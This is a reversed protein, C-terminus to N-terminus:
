KTYDDIKLSYRVKGSSGLVFDLKDDALAMEVKDVVPEIEPLGKVGAAYWRSVKSSLVKL